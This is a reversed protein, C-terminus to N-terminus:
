VTKTEENKSSNRLRKQNYEEWVGIVPLDTFHLVRDWESMTIQNKKTIEGNCQKCPFPTTTKAKQAFHVGCWPCKYYNVM